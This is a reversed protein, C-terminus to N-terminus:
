FTETTKKADPADGKDKMKDCYEQADQQSKISKKITKVTVKQPKEAQPDKKKAEQYSKMDDKYKEAVRKTETPIESQRIVKYEDGIQVVAYLDSSKSAAPKTPRSSNSHKTHDAALIALPLAVLLFLCAVFSILSSRKM